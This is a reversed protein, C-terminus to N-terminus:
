KELPPLDFLRRDSDRTLFHDMQKKIEEWTGQRMAEQLYYTGVLIKRQLDKKREATKHRNETAQIKADLKQRQEKLRALSQNANESSM